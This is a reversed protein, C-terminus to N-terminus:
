QAKEEPYETDVAKIRSTRDNTNDLKERKAPTGDPSEYIENQDKHTRVFVRISIGQYFIPCNGKSPSADDHKPCYETDQPTDRMIPNKVAVDWQAQEAVQQSPLTPPATHCPSEERQQVSTPFRCYM